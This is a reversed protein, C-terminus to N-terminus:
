TSGGNNKGQTLFREPDVLEIRRLGNRISGDEELERLLRSLTEPSIGLHNAIDVKYMPLLFSHGTLNGRRSSRVYFEHLFEKLRHKTSMTFTDTLLRESSRVREAIRTFFCHQLDPYGLFLNELKETSVKCVWSEELAVSDYSHHMAGLDECGFLDGSLYFGVVHKGGNVSVRECKVSGSRVIYIADASQGLTIIRKGGPYPGKIEIIRSLAAISRSSGQNSLLYTIAMCSNCAADGRLCSISAGM